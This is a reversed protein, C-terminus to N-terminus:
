DVMQKTSLAEGWGPGSRLVQPCTTRGTRTCPSNGPNSGFGTVQTLSAAQAPAAVAVLMTATLALGALAGALRTRTRHM